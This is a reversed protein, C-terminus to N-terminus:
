LLEQLLKRTGGTKDGRHTCGAAMQADLNGNDGSGAIMPGAFVKKFEQITGEFSKEGHLDGDWVILRIQDVQDLYARADALTDVVMCDVGMSTLLFRLTQQVMPDDEVVLVFKKESM